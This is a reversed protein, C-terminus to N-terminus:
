IIWREGEVQGEEREEKSDGCRQLGPIADNQSM